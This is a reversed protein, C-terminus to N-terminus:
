CLAGLSGTGIAAEADGASVAAEVTGASAGFATASVSATTELGAAVGFVSTTTGLLGVVSLLGILALVGVRSGRSATL